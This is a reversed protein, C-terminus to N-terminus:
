AGPTVYVLRTVGTDRLRSLLDADEAREPDILLWRQDDFTQWALRPLLPATAVVVPLGGEGPEATAGALETARVVDDGMRHATRVEAVGLVAFATAVLVVAATGVQRAESGLARRGRDLGAIALPVVLPLGVAFYRGGWEASGGEPYQTALVALAFLGAGGALVRADTTALLRRGGLALGVWLLPFALLLGTIADAEAVVLRAIALGAAAAAFLAVPRHDPPRRRAAVVAVALVVSVLLVVFAGTDLTSTLWTNAFGRARAALFSLSERDSPRASADEVPSGVVARQWIPDLLRAGAGAAFLAGATTLRILRTRGAQRLATAGVAAALGAALLVGETRLLGAVAMAVAAIAVWRWRNRRDPDSANLAALAAGGAAAAGLTHAM